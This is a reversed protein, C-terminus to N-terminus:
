KANLYTEIKEIMMPHAWQREGLEEGVVKLNKDLIFTHPIKRVGLKKGLEKGFDDWAMPLETLNNKTQFASVASPKADMSIAVVNYKGTKHLKELDPLEKICPACWTAWVNVVWAKDNAKFVFPKEDVTQVNVETFTDTLAKVKQEPQESCGMLALFVLLGAIAQKNM